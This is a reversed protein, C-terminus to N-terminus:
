QKIFKETVRENASNVIQIVYIGRALRSVDISSELSWQDKELAITQVRTGSENYINVQVKGSTSNALRLNLLGQVPNPYIRFGAGPLASLSNDVTDEATIEMTGGSTAGQTMAVGGKKAPKVTVTMMSVSTENHNDTVSLELTYTGAVLGSVTTSLAWEDSFKVWSPGSLLYWFVGNITAGGNGAAKGNLVVSSAPLTISQDAGANVTPTEPKAAALVWVTMSTNASNGRSDTVILQFIYDGAEEMGTVATKLSSPSAIKAKPGYVQKWTTTKITAGDKAVATGVLTTSSVPLEIAQGKGANVTPALSSPTIATGTVFVTMSGYASKGNNDTATLVFIYNGPNTLGTIATSLSSPSAIKATVPGGNQTWSLKKITAGNNGVATGALEVSSTPLVIAQGKGASVTPLAAVAPPTSVPPKPAPATPATTKPATTKPPAPKTAPAPSVVVAVDSAGSLGNNDTVTLRFQYNGAVTLGSVETTLGSASSFKATAPGELQKWSTERITAGGNGRATGSLTVTSVPLVIVPDNGANATPAVAPTMAVPMSTDGQRLLWQWVNMNQVQGVMKIINKNAKTWTVSPEYETNWCCHAGGGYNVEFYSASNPVSDLMNQAGAQLDRFDQSGEVWLERGGCAKAWHGMKRPYSESAYIGLDDAPEVGELNVIAKVMRGYTNDGATPEYAVFLNAQWAGQSLGTFYFSNRKIRYRALIADIAPKVSTAPFFPAPPQLSIIFPHHVGNGLTVSGDWMGNSILYHPGNVKLDNINRTQQDIGPFFVIGAASDKGTLSIDETVIANWGNFTTDYTVMKQARLASTFFLSIFLFLCLKGSATLYIKKM